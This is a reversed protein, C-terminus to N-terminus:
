CAVDALAMQSYQERWTPGDTIKPGKHWGDREDLSPASLAKGAQQAALREHILARHSCYIGHQGAPCNCTLQRADSSLRVTYHGAIGDPDESSSVAWWATGEALVQIGKAHARELAREYQENQEHM